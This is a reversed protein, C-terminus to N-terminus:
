SEHRELHIDVSSSDVVMATSGDRHTFVAVRELRRLVVVMFLTAVAGERSWVALANGLVVVDNLILRIELIAPRAQDDPLGQWVVNVAVRYTGSVPTVFNSTTLDFVDPISSNLIANYRVKTLIGDPIEQPTDLAVSLEIPPMGAAGKRTGTRNDKHKGPHHGRNRGHRRGAASVTVDLPTALGALSLLAAMRALVRRRTGVACTSRGRADLATPDM